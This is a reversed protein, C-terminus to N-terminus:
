SNAPVPEKRSGAYCAATWRAITDWNLRDCAERSRRRLDALDMTLAQRLRAALADDNGPEFLLDDAGALADPIEGLRPAIVPLGFTLALIVSGSTQVREFPLVAVDAGAFHGAVQADEVYECQLTVNSSAAVLGRLVAEYAPERCPGVLRLTADPRPDLQNWVRLLREIGKYPRMMGFFMITRHDVAQGDRTALHDGPEIGPYASRYNGHPIVQMKSAPCRLVDAADSRSKEGHVIVQSVLRVLFRRMIQETRRHRCEHPLLNHLTWVIRVGALQVLMLDFLLRLWYSVCRFWGGSGAYAETWHLHLVDIPRNDRVARRIPLLRRYGVPFCVDIDEDGLATALLAQYPNDVRYDPMM